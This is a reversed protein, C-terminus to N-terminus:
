IIIKYNTIALGFLTSRLAPVCRRTAAHRQATPRRRHQVTARCVAGCRLCLDVCLTRLAGLGVRRVARVSVGTVVSLDVGIAVSAAVDAVM